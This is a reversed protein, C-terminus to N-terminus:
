GERGCAQEMDRAHQTAQEVAAKPEEGAATEIAAGKELTRHVPCREAIEILRTRQEPSLDGELEVRRVFLDTGEATRSHGVKVKVADLGLEKGRAYLRLTMATCAGLGVALLDYPTPGSGLGGVDVPEDAVFRAAAATVEVQFAGEGTEEVSVFGSQSDSRLPAGSPLYRSAWTEVIEAVYQVDKPSTLLHDAGDLSVFSKPHRAAVFIRTANDIGVTADQPSHLILLARRLDGIRSEQDQASLDAVFWRRITFPRGGISVEAEGRAIVEDLSGVLLHKVHDADMPAAITAVAAIEPIEGAAALAAAGGLSHGILVGPARGAKRMAAAAAVLDRVSGSFGSDSLDADADPIPRLAM